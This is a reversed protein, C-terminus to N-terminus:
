GRWLFRVMPCTLDIMEETGSASMQDVEGSWGLRVRPIMSGPHRSIGM